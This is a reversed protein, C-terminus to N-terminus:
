FATFSSPPGGWRWVGFHPRDPLGGRTGLGTSPTDRSSTIPAQPVGEGLSGPHRMGGPRPGAGAAGGPAAAYVAAPRPSSRAGAAAPGPRAKEM